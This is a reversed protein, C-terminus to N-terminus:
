KIFLCCLLCYFKLSDLLRISSDQLALCHRKPLWLASLVVDDLASAGDLFDALTTYQKKREKM